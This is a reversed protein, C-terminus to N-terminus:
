ILSMLHVQTELMFKTKIMTNYVFFKNAITSNSLTRINHFNISSPHINVLKQDNNTITILEKNKSNYYLIKPYLGAVIAANIISYSNSQANYNLPM